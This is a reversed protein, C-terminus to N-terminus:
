LLVLLGPFSIRRRLFAPSFGRHATDMYSRIRPSRGRLLYRVLRCMSTDIGTLTDICLATLDKIRSPNDKRGDLGM